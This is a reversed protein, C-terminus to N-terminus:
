ARIGSFRSANLSQALPRPTPGGYRFREKLNAIPQEIWHWSVSAVAITVGVKVVDLWLPEGLNLHRALAWILIFVFSHFLYIGYSVKGLYGLRSDRLIRLSPHGTNLIVLGILSFYLLNWSLIMLSPLLSMEGFNMGLTTATTTAACAVAFLCTLSLGLQIKDRHREVQEREIFIVALMSGFAFGDCRALLLWWHFGVSRMIVSMVVLAVSVPILRRRGLLLVMIPWFFFFQEELALSWTHEFYWSFAPIADSWYRTINQTFTLYYPLGDMPFSKPLWPNVLILLIVAIYYIPWIRLWRRVSFTFLFGVGDGKKLIISTLLYGSLIFFLDVRVGHLAFAQPKLHYIMVSMAALGRIADLETIRRM